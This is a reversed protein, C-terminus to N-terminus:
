RHLGHLLNRKEVPSRGLSAQTQPREAAIELFRIQGEAGVRKPEDGLELLSIGAKVLLAGPDINAKTLKRIALRFAVGDATLFVDKTPFKVRRVM